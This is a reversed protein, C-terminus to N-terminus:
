GKCQRVRYVEIETQHFPLQYGRFTQHKHKEVATFTHLMQFKVNQFWVPFGVESTFLVEWNNFIILKYKSAPGEISVNSCNFFIVIDPVSSIYHIVFCKSGDYSKSGVFREISIAPLYSLANFMQITKRIYSNETKRPQFYVQSSFIPLVWDCILLILM